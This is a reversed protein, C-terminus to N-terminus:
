KKHIEFLFLTEFFFSDRAKEKFDYNKYESVLADINTLSSLILYITGGDELHDAADNLFPRTIDFGTTGGDWQESNEIRDETPLYPPNFIITDFKGTIRQFLNSNILDLTVHNRIANKETCALAAESVDCCTVTSGLTACYVSIIGSGCGIELVTHGPVINDLVLFTDESPPYVNKCPEISIRNYKEYDIRLMVIVYGPYIITRSRRFHFAGNGEGPINGM